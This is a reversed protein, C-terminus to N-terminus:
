HREARQPGYARREKSPERQSVQNFKVAAFDMYARLAQPTKLAGYRACSAYAFSGDPGSGSKIWPTDTQNVRIIDQSYFTRAM